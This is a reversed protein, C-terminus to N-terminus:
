LNVIKLMEAYRRLYTEFVFTSVAGGAQLMLFTKSSFVADLRNGATRWCKKKANLMGYYNVYDVGTYGGGVMDCGILLLSLLLVEPM